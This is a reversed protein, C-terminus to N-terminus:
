EEMKEDYVDLFGSPMWCRMEEKKRLIESHRVCPRDRGIKVGLREFAIRLDCDECSQGCKPDYMNKRM